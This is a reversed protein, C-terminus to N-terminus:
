DRLRLAVEQLLDALDHRALKETGLGTRIDTFGQRLGTVSAHGQKELEALGARARIEAAEIEEGNGQIARHLEDRQVRLAHHLRVDVDDLARARSMSEDRLQAQVREIQPALRAELEAIQRNFIDSLVRIEDGVRADLEKLRGDFERVLSGSMLERIQEMRAEGADAAQVIDEVM